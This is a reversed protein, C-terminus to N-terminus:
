RTHNGNASLLRRTLEDFRFGEPVAFEVTGNVPSGVAAVALEVAVDDAAKPQVLVPSGRVTTSPSM